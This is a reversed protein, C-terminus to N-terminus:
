NQPNEKLYKEAFTLATITGLDCIEGTNIKNMIEKFEHIEVTLEEHEDLEQEQIKKCNLGLFFHVKSNLLGTSENASLTKIIKEAKYGTEELLERAATEEINKDSIEQYGAPVELDLRQIPHRYQRIMVVKKDTTIPVIIAADKRSVRYYEEVIKGNEKQCREKELTFFNNNIIKESNLIKWTM